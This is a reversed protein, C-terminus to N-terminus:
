EDEIKRRGSQVKDCIVYGKTIFNDGSIFVFLGGFILMIGSFNALIDFVNFSRHPLWIQMMEFLIGLFIVFSVSKWKEDFLNSFYM